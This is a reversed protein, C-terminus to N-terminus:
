YRSLCLASHPPWAGPPGAPVAVEGAIQAAQSWSAMGDTTVGRGHATVGPDRGSGGGGQGAM